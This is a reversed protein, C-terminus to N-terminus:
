SGLSPRRPFQLGAMPAELCSDLEPAQTIEREVGLWSCVIFVDLSIEAIAIAASVIAIALPWDRDDAVVVVVVM